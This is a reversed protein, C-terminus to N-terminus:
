PGGGGVSVLSTVTVTVNTYVTSGVQVARVTMQHTVPDYQDQIGLPMGGALQVVRGVTVIVNNFITAGEQVVPMTLQNGSFTDAGAVNGISVLSGVTIVVNYFTSSGVVVAPVTLQKTVTNYTPETGTPATGNPPTVINGVTVVVNSFIANGIALSPISLRGANYTALNSIKAFYGEQFGGGDTSQLAGVLPLNPSSTYGAFIMNKQADVTMGTVNIGGSMGPVGFFTGFLVQSGTSSLEAIFASGSAYPVPSGNLPLDGANNPSGAIYVNRNADVAIALPNTNFGMAASPSGYFTSWVLAGAGTMKTVFYTNCNTGHSFCSPQLVGPTVPFDPFQDNGVAYINGSSDATLAFVQSINGAAAGNLYTAFVLSAPGSKTPDFEAVFANVENCQTASNQACTTSLAGPTTPMAPSDTAGGIVIKGNALTLASVLNTNSNSGGGFTTSYLLSHGDASLETVFANTTNAIPVQYASATTPFVYDGSQPVPGVQGTNTAGTVYVNGAGDLSIAAPYTGGSSGLFTGYLISTGTPNLRVIFASTAGYIYENGANFGACGSKEGYNLGTNFDFGIVSPTCYPLYADATIPFNNSNTGGLIWAEDNAGVAVGVAYDAGSGVGGIGAGGGSGGLYTSYILTRGDASIKSVFASSLSSAGCKTDIDPTSAPCTPFIVGPTTPYDPAYTIGTLYIEGSSNLAMGYPISEQTSGGLYSSYVLQPDIVLERTHDYAGVQVGVQQHAGITFNGSVPQRVGGSQQYLVPKHFRIENQGTKSALSLILDGSPALHPHAGRFALRIRAPEAQPAVVFDYELQGQTGYYVLDIGPYVGDTATRAFTPLGTSWKSRDNGLLYNATGPLSRQGTMRANANAGVLDMRIVATEAAHRQVDAGRQLEFVASTPALFLTYGSGRALYAVQSDTQGRNPEFSLPLVGFDRAVPAPVAVDPATSIPQAGCTSAAAALSLGIWASRIAVSNM